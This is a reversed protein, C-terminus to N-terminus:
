CRTARELFTLSESPSPAALLWSLEILKGFIAGLLFVPFYPKLFRVLKEMFVGSFMPPLLGPDQLVVALMTVVPAFLIVSYGRYAVAM